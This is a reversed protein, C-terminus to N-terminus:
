RRVEMNMRSLAGEQAIVEAWSAVCRFGVAASAHQSGDVISLSQVTCDEKPSRFSGGCLMVQKVEQLEVVAAWEAVNGVVDCVGAPNTGDRAESELVPWPRRLWSERSNCRGALFEDGWPYKQQKNRCGALAVQQWEEPTPLHKGAWKAYALADDLTVNTAPLEEWHEIEDKLYEWPNHWLRGTEEVFHRYEGCTVPYKDVYFRAEEVYVMEKEEYVLKREVVKWRIVPKPPEQGLWGDGQLFLVPVVWAPLPVAKKIQEQRASLNASGSPIYRIRPTEPLLDLLRQEAGHRSSPSQLRNLAERGAQMADDVTARETLARYFAAAFAQAEEVYLDAQMGVVASVGTDLLAQAVGLTPAHDTIGSRCAMFVMLKPVTQGKERAKKIWDQLTTSTLVDALGPTDPNELYLRGMVVHSAIEVDGHGLFHFFHAGETIARQLGERTAHPLLRLDLLEVGKLAQEIERLYVEGDFRALGEAQPEAYAVLVRLPAQITESDKKVVIPRRVISIRHDLALFGHGDHLLEWPLNFLPDSRTPSAQIELLLRLRVPETAVGPSLVQRCTEFRERIRRTFLANYLARGLEEEDRYSGLIPSDTEQPDSKGLGDAADQIQVRIHREDKTELMLHFTPIDRRPTSGSGDLKVKIQKEM